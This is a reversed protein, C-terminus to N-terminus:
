CFSYCSNCITHKHARTLTIFTDSIQSRTYTTRNHRNSKFLKQQHHMVYLLDVLLLLLMAVVASPLANEIHFCALFCLYSLDLFCVSQMVRHLTSNHSRTRGIHTNTHTRMLNLQLKLDFSSFWNCIVRSVYM